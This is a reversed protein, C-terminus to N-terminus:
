KKLENLDVLEIADYEKDKFTQIFEKNLMYAKSNFTDEYFVNNHEFKELPYGIFNLDCFSVEYAGAEENLRVLPYGQTRCIMPRHEYIVCRNDVLFKCQDPTANENIKIDKDKLVKQIAHFEVPLIKFSQCCKSCGEKCKMQKHHVKWLKQCEEDVKDRINIYADFYKKSM